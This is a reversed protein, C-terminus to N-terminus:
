YGQSREAGKNLPAASRLSAPPESLSSDGYTVLPEIPM